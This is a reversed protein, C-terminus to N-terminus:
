PQKDLFSPFFPSEAFDTTPYSNTSGCSARITLSVPLVVKRDSAPQGDVEGVLLRTALAGMEQIPMRVTTLTPQITAAFWTDDFGVIAFDEPVRLGRSRIARIAGAACLDNVAFIATPWEQPPRELIKIMAEFGPRWDFGAQVLLSEDFPLGHTELARKYGAIRPRNTCVTDGGHLMMIKKHGLNALHHTALFGGEEDNANVTIVPDPLEGSVVAVCPFKQEACKLPLPDNVGPLAVILGDVRPDIRNRNSFAGDRVTYLMMNYHDAIAESFVGNMVMTCFPNRDIFADVYPFVLGLVGSKGTSLSRAIPNPVYGLKAAAELIRQRVQESIRMNGRKTGNLTASCAAISAGAEKAVDKLTASM